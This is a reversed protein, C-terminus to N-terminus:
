LKAKNVEPILNALARAIAASSMSQQRPSMTTTTKTATPSQSLIKKTTTTHSKQDMTRTICTLTIVTFIFLLKKM